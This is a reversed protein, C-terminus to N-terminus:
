RGDSLRVLCDLVDRRSALTTNSCTADTSSCCMSPSSRSVNAENARRSGEPWRISTPLCVLGPEGDLVCEVGLEAIAAVRPVKATIDQGTRTWVTCGDGDVAVQARM